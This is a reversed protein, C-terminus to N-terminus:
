NITVVDIYIERLNNSYEFACDGISHINKFLQPWIIIQFHKPQIVKWFRFTTKTSLNTYITKRGEAPKKNKSGAPRPM